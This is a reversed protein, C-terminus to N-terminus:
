PSSIPIGPEPLSGALPGGEEPVIGPVVAGSIGRGLALDGLLVGEAGQLGLPAIIGGQVIVVALGNGDAIRQGGDGMAAGGALGLQIHATDTSVALGPIVLLDDNQHINVGISALRIQRGVGIPGNGGGQTGVAILDDEIAGGQLQGGEAHGNQDGVSSGM